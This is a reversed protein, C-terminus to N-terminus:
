RRITSACETKGRKAHYQQHFPEAKVYSTVMRVETIVREDLRRKAELAADRQMNDFYFVVSRFQSGVRAGQRNRSTPDHITFFVALLDEYAIRHVDYEIRVVEAHGTRGACVQQYTAPVQNGGAYGVETSVIGEVRRFEAEADWFSGAGFMALRVAM